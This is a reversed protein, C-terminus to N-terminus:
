NGEEDQALSITHINKRVAERFARVGERAILPDNGPYARLWDAETVKAVARGAAQVAVNADSYKKMEFLATAKSNLLWPNEPWTMLGWNLANLADLYRKDKLLVWAYDNIAAWNNPDSRLYEEYDKASSVYDGKFGEILGRVYYSSPSPNPNKAIEDNVLALADAFDGKLFAIRALQHRVLPLAPDLTKAKKFLMEARAIDYDSAQAADFHRSGYSYALPASPSVSLRVDEYAFRLVHAFPTRSIIFITLLVLACIFILKRRSYLIERM